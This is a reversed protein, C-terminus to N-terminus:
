RQVKALERVTAQLRDYLAKEKETVPQLVPPNKPDLNPVLLQWPQLHYAKGIQTLTDITAAVEGRLLRGVTSQTVGSKRHLEMQSTPGVKSFLLARLNQALVGRLAM